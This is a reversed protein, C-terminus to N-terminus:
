WNRMGGLDFVTAFGARQLAATAAASRAGSACYVVVPQDKPGVEQLRSRFLV